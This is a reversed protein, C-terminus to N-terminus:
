GVITLQRCGNSFDGTRAYRNRAHSNRNGNQQDPRAQVVNNRIRLAHKNVDIACAHQRAHHRPENDQDTLQTKALRMFFRNGAM